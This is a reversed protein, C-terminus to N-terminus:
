KVVVSIPIETNLIAKEGSEADYYLVNFKGEYEGAQLDVNELLALKKIGYDPEILGSQAIVTDQVIIQLVMNQNSKAPNQFLLEAIKEDANITVDKSYTLSVAGGGEQQQLKEQDDDNLTQAYTEKEIPAFDPSIVTKNNNLLTVVTITVAAVTIILALVVIIKFKHKKLIDMM